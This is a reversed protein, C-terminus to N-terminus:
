NEQQNEQQIERLLKMAKLAADKDNGRIIQKLKKELTGETIKKLQKIAM